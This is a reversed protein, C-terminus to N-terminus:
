WRERIWDAIKAVMEKTCSHGTNDQIFLETDSVDVGRRRRRELWAATHAAPVLRDYKGNCLMMPVSAFSHEINMDAERVLEALPRPWRKKQTETMNEALEDYSAEHLQSAELGVSAADFDLRELLLSTLSPCGVVIIIAELQGPAIAPMRWATHGGLSVGMMINRFKTFQPLYCPLFDLILKFDHTGGSIISLLDPSDRTLLM